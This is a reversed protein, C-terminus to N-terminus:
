KSKTSDPMTVPTLPEAVPHTGYKAIYDSYKFSALKTVIQDQIYKYGKVGGHVNQMTIFYSALQGDQTSVYGALATVANLTGTKSRANGWAPTNIMRGRTTGDIGAISLTPVFDNYMKPRTRIGHLLDIVTNATTHNDHSLGSGDACYGNSCDVDIVNMWSSILRRSREVPNTIGIDAVSSLKRFMSEALFNDSVKNTVQLLDLLGTQKEILTKYEGHSKPPVGTRATGTVRVGNLELRWKLLSAMVLPVNKIPVNYNRVMRAPIQGTITIIQSGDKAESSSMHLTYSGRSKTRVTRTKAKRGKGVKVKKTSYSSAASTSAHNVIKVNALPPTLSVHVGSGKSAGASVHIVVVNRDIFFNPSSSIFGPMAQSEEEGMDENSLDGTNENSDDTVISDQTDALSDRVAEPGITQTHQAFYKKADPSLEDDDTLDGVIDGEVQTIGVAKLQKAIEDFDSVSLTPDGSPRLYINGVVSAGDVRSMPSIIDLRTRFYYDSGLAWLTSSTTFLKEVSAPMVPLAPNVAYIPHLTNDPEYFVVKCSPTMRKYSTAPLIAALESRLGNLAAATDCNCGTYSINLPTHISDLNPPQCFAATTVGFIGLLLAIYLRL